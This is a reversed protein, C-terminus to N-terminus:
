TMKSKMQILEDEKAAKVKNLQEVQAQYDKFTKEM